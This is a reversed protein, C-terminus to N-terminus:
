FARIARVSKGGPYDKYSDYKNGSSFYIGWVRHNTFESSSWYFDGIFGGITTRNQYLKKLEDLSPLYWDSYGNTNLDSCLQAAYSGIGQNSTIKNTNINGTGLITDSATTVTFVGNYWKISASLDNNCAILGHTANSAYGPDGPQLIYAIIGGQYSSGVAMSQPALNTNNSTNEPPPSEKKCGLMLFTASIFILITKKM